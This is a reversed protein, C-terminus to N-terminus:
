DLLRPPRRAFVHHVRHCRAAQAASRVGRGPPHPDQGSLHVMCVIHDVRKIRSKNAGHQFPPLTIVQSKSAASSNWIRLFPRQWWSPSQTAAAESMLLSPSPTLATDTHAFISHVHTIWTRMSISAARTHASAGGGPSGDAVVIQGGMTPLDIDSHKGWPRRTVVEAGSRETCNLTKGALFSAVQNTRPLVCQATIM